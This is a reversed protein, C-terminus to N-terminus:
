AAKSVHESIREAQITWGGDNSGRADERRDAPLAAFGSEVIRLRRGGPADDLDFSVLTTPRREYEGDPDVAQPHWRFSLHREAEVREVFVVFTTGEWGPETLTARLTEGPEFPGEFVARFWKGFESSDGIAKWVRSRPARLVVEKEIRDSPSM